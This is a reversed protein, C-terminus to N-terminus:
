KQLRGMRELCDQMRKHCDKTAELWAPNLGYGHAPCTFFMPPPWPWADKCACRPPPRKAFWRRIFGLM